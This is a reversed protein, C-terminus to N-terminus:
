EICYYCERHCGFTGTCADFNDEGDDCSEITNPQVIGDGCYGGGDYEVIADVSADQISADEVAADSAQGADVGADMVVVGGDAPAMVVPFFDGFTLTQAVVAMTGRRTPLPVFVGNPDRQVVVVNAMTSGMPLRTPTIPLSVSAPMSLGPQAPTVTVGDSVTIYAPGPRRSPPPTYVTVTFDTARSTPLITVKAGSPHTLTFESDPSYRASVADSGEADDGCGAMLLPLLLLSAAAYCHRMGNSERHPQTNM